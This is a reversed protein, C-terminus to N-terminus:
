LLTALAPQRRLLALAFDAHGTVYGNGIVLTVDRSVGEAGLAAASFSTAMSYLVVTGRPRTCLIATMETGGLNCCSFTVDAPGGAVRLTAITDRADAIVARDALGLEVVRGLRAGDRDVATVRAGLERAAAAVLAGSKGAGLILVNQGTTVFRPVVAPAGCVDFLALATADALDSPLRVIPASRFSIAEGAIWIRSAGREIREVAEIRLPTLTLSALTAVREGVALGRSGADPGVARIRGMLMGGSDTRPNHLKGRTAVIACVEAALAADESHLEALDRFSTADIQLAEVAIALEGGRLPLRPDVRWARQPMVGAPELVRDEGFESM